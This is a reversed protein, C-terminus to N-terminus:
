NTPLTLHTYSVAVVHTSDLTTVSIYGSTASNFVVESGFTITDGSSITGVIATGFNSNGYDQYAVVVHTSDISTVSTYGSGASNFVVEDGPIVEEEGGGVENLGKKINNNVKDYSVVDSATLDEGAMDELTTTSTKITSGEGGTFFNKINSM